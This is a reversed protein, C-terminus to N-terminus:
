KSAPDVLTPKELTALLEIMAQRKARTEELLLRADEDGPYSALAKELDAITQDAHRLFERVAAALATRKAHMEPNVLSESAGRTQLTAPAVLVLTAFLLASFRCLYTGFHARPMPARRRRSLEM